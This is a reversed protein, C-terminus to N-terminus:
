ATAKNTCFFGRYFFNVDLAINNKIENGKTKSGASKKIGVSVIKDCAVAKICVAFLLESLVIVIDDCIGIGRRYRCTVDCTVGREANGCTCVIM